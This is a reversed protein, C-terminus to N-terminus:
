EESDDRIRTVEERFNSNAELVDVLGRDLLNLLERKSLQRMKIGERNVFFYQDLERDHVALKALLPTDGDHFGLWAGMPLNLVVEESQSRVSSNGAAQAGADNSAPAGGGMRESRERKQRRYEDIKEQNKAEEQERRERELQEQQHREKERREQELREQKLREQELREQQLREQELREKELREQELRQQRERELREQELRLAEQRQREEEKQRAREAAVGTFEDLEEVTSLGAATALCASFSAGDRLPIVLNQAILGAFESYDQQLIKLGAQNTFLLQHEDDMKLALQARLPGDASPLIFWQGVEFDTLATQHAENREPEESADVPILEIKELVLPQQRLVRLHAFEVLGVADNVAEQDHHLNLLWRKLDKPLQTVVDFIYQRREEDPEASAYWPGKLFEGIGDPAPYRTLEANIMQAAQKKARTTKVRGQETEVVRQAMRRTREHDREAASMLVSCIADLDTERDEFWQLAGEVVRTVQRDLAQGARGLRPQWGIASAHITDLIKHLPHAGPTLFRPDTIALGASLVKLPQLKAALPEEIPYHIEWAQLAAGLWGLVAVQERTPLAPDGISETQALIAELPPLDYTGSNRIYEILEDPLMAQGAEASRDADSYRQLV